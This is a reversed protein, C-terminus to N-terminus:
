SGEPRERASSLRLLAHAHHVSQSFVPRGSGDAAWTLFLDEQVQDRDQADRCKLKVPNLQLLALARSNATSFNYWKGKAFVIM